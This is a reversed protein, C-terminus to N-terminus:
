LLEFMADRLGVNYQAIFMADGIDIINNQHVDTQVFAESHPAPTQQMGVIEKLVCLTDAQNVMADSNADGLLLPSTVTIFNPKTCVEEGGSIALSVTYTGPTAYLHAPHQESSRAGDGFSWTWDSTEGMSRDTFQVALPARGTTINASFDAETGTITVSGNMCTADHRVGSAGSYSFSGLLDSDDGIDGNAKLTIDVIPTPNSTSVGESYKMSIGTTVIPSGGGGGSGTYIIPNIVTRNPSISAYVVSSNYTISVSIDNANTINDISATIVSSSNKGITSDPISFIPQHTVHISEPKQETSQEGIAKVTLSSLVPPLVQVPNNDDDIINVDGANEVAIEGPSYLEGGDEGSKGGKTISTSDAAVPITIIGLFCLAIFLCLYNTKM